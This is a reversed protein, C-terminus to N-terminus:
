SVRCQPSWRAGGRPSAKLFVGIEFGMEYAIPQCRRWILPKILLYLVEIGQVALSL